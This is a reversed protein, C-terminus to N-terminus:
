REGERKCACGKEPVPDDGQGGWPNCSLIRKTGLWLGIFPGHIRLAEIAYQSCTPSYRCADPFLPSLIWQYLKVPIILLWIFFDRLPKM